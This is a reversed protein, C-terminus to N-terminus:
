AAGARDPRVHICNRCNERECADLERRDEGMRCLCLTRTWPDRNKGGHVNTGTDMARQGWLVLKQNQWCKGYDRHCNRATEEPFPRFSPPPSTLYGYAKRPGLRGRVIGPQYREPIGFVDIKVNLLSSWVRPLRSRARSSCSWRTM